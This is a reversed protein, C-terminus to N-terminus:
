KKSSKRFINEISYITSKFIEKYKKKDYNDVEKMSNLTAIAHDIKKYVNKHTLHKYEELYLLYTLYSIYHIFKDDLIGLYGYYTLNTSHLLNKECEVLKQKIANYEKDRLIMM